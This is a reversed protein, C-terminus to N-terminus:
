NNLFLFIRLSSYVSVPIYLRTYKDESTQLRPPKHKNTIHSNYLRCDLLNGQRGINIVSKMFARKNADKLVLTPPHRTTRLLLHLTYHVLRSMNICSVIGHVLVLSNCKHRLM